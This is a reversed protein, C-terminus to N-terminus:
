AAATMGPESVEDEQDALDQQNGKGGVLAAAQALRALSEERGLIDLIEVIGPGTKGEALAWRLYHHLARNWSRRRRQLLTIGKEHAELKDPTFTLQEKELAEREADTPESIESAFQMPGRDGNVLDHLLTRLHESMWNEHSLQQFEDAAAVLDSVRAVKPNHKNRPPPLYHSNIVPAFFFENRMYFDDIHTFNKADALLIKRVYDRINRKLFDPSSILTSSCAPNYSANFHSHDSRKGEKLQAPLGDCIRDVLRGIAPGDAVALDQTHKKQLYWLKNLSVTINGRTFRTTFQVGLSCVM